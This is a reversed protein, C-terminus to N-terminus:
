AHEDGPQEYQARECCCQPPPSFSGALVFHEFVRRPSERPKMAMRVFSIGDPEQRSSIGIQHMVASGTLDM